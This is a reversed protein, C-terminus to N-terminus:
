RVARGLRQAPAALGRHPRLASDGYIDVMAQNVPIGAPSSNYSYYIFSKNM